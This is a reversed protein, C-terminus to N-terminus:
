ESRRPPFDPPTKGSGAVSLPSPLRFWSPCASSIRADSRGLTRGAEEGYRVTSKSQSGNKLPKGVSWSRWTLSSILTFRFTIDTHYPHTPSQERSDIYPRYRTCVCTYRRRATYTPIHLAFPVSGRGEALIERAVYGMKSVNLIPFVM